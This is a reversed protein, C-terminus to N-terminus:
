SKQQPQKECVLTFTFATMDKVVDDQFSEKIEINKFYGTAKLNKMLQAVADVSLAIGDLNIAAGDDKMSNLWVADTRNVTDGITTLPTAPGSQNAQLQHIVNVRREYIDKQKELEIYKAKIDSLRQNERKAEDMKIKLSAADRQLTSYYFYNGGAALATIVLLVVLMNPGGGSVTTTTAAVAARKGKKGSTVGLLNIRIM